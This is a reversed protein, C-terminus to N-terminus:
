HGLRLWITDEGLSGAGMNLWQACPVEIPQFASRGDEYITVQYTASEGECQQSGTKATLTLVDGDLTYSGTHTLNAEFQMKNTTLSFAGDPALRLWYHAFQPAPTRNVVLVRAWDGTLADVTVPVLAPGPSPSAPTPQPAATCSSILFAVTFVYLACPLRSSM